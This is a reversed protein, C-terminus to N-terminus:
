ADDIEAKFAGILASCQAKTLGCLVADVEDGHRPLAISAVRFYRDHLRTIFRADLSLERMLTRAHLRQHPTSNGSRTALSASM